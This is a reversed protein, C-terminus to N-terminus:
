KPRNEVALHGTGNGEWLGAKKKSFISILAIDDYGNYVMSLQTSAVEKNNTNNFIKM